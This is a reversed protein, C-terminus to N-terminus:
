LSVLEAEVRPRVKPKLDTEPILDVPCDLLEELEQRLAASPQANSSRSM